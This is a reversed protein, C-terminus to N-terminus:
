SWIPDGAHVVSGCHLCSPNRTLEWNHVEGSFGDYKRYLSADRKPSFGVVLQLVETVASSALLGNFPVVMAAERSSKKARKLRIYSRDQGGAENELKRKTLFGTCWMCADGPVITFVNGSLSTIQPGTEIEEDVGVNFGVDVYPIGYRGAIELMDARACLSNVCGILIDVDRLAALVDESPINSRLARFSCKPNITLVQRKVVSTKFARLALDFARPADTSLRNDSDFRQPDVVVIGGFGLAALQTALQSGGGSLGVIGIRTNALLSKAVAGHVLPIQRFQRFDQEVPSQTYTHIQNELLRVEISETPYRRNPSWVMGAASDDGLVISGHFRQPVASQFYPILTTASRRDDDSLGVNRGSHRHLIVLGTSDEVCRNLLEINFTGTWKAGHSPTKIFSSEPAVILKRILVLDRTSTAASTALGFVVPEHDIRQESLIARLKTALNSPVRIQVNRRLPFGACSARSSSNM